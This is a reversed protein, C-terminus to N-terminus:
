IKKFKTLGIHENLGGPEKLVYSYTHIFYNFRAFCFCINLMHICRFNKVKFYPSRYSNRASLIKVRNQPIARNSYWKKFIIIVSNQPITSNSFKQVLFLIARYRFWVIQIRGIPPSVTTLWDIKHLAWSELM